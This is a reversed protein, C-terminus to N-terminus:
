SPAAKVMNGPAARRAPVAPALLGVVVLLPSAAGSSSRVEPVRRLERPVPRVEDAAQWRRRPTTSPGPSSGTKRALLGVLIVVALIPDVLEPNRGNNWVIARSSCASRSPPSRRHDAPETLQGLM